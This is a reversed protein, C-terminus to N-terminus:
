TRKKRKRKRKGGKRKGGKRREGKGQGVQIECTELTDTAALDNHM